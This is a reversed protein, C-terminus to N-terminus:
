TREVLYQLVDLVTHMAANYETGSEWRVEEIAALMREKEEAKRAANGYKGIAPDLKLEEVREKSQPKVYSGLRAKYTQALEATMGAHSM